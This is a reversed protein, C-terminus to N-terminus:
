RYNGWSLKLTPQRLAISGIWFRLSLANLLGSIMEQRFIGENMYPIFLSFSGKNNTRLM